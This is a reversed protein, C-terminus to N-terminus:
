KLDSLVTCLQRVRRINLNGTKHTLTSTGVKVVIRM